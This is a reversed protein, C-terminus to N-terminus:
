KVTPALYVKLQDVQRDRRRPLGPMDRAEKQPRLRLDRPSDGRVIAVPMSLRSEPLPPMGRAAPLGTDIAPVAVTAGCGIGM